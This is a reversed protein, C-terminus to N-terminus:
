IECELEVEKPLKNQKYPNDFKIPIFISIVFLVFSALYLYAGEGIQIRASIYEPAYKLTNALNLYTNTGYCYLLFVIIGFIYYPKRKKIAISGIYYPLTFIILEVGRVRLEASTIGNDTSITIFKNIAASFILIFSAIALIMKLNIKKPKADQNNDNKM